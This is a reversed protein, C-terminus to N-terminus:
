CSAHGSRSDDCKSRRRRAGSSTERRTQIPTEPAPPHNTQLRRSPPCIFFRSVIATATAHTAAVLKAPTAAPEDPPPLSLHKASEGAVQVSFEVVLAVM